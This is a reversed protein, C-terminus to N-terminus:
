IKSTVHVAGLQILTKDCALPILWKLNPIVPLRPILSVGCAMVTEEEMSRFENWYSSATEYFSVEYDPGSIIAFRRWTDIELGTEERFERVMANFYPDGGSNREDSAEVKGGIGNLKGKQWEPKLKQILLVSERPLDFLFGCVYSTIKTEKTLEPDFIATM